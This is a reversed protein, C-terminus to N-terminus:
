PIPGYVPACVIDYYELEVARNAEAYAAAEQGMARVNDIQLDADPAWYRPLVMLPDGVAGEPLYSPRMPDAADALPIWNFMLPGRPNVTFGLRYGTQRALEAARPTFGGGPWIYAIPPRGFNAAIADRSGQLESLMYEESVFESIPTNHVVGHAQYDVWGEQSLAVNEPLAAAGIADNLSIWSNVVPWGWQEYYPRFYTDFYQAYHRDDVVLLVSRPPIYANSELFDALQVTNIAVFNQEHLDRMLIDFRGAEIQNYDTAEGGPAVISHFMIVMVVTGPAANTSTWRARLYQCTDEIYTHPTDLPNLYDAAPYPPPLAPPTRIATPASTATSTPAAPRATQTMGAYLTAVARTAAADADVPAATPEGGCATLVWLLFTLGLLAFPRAKM